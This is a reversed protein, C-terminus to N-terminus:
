LTFPSVLRKIRLVSKSGDPGISGERERDMSSGRSVPPPPTPQTSPGAIPPGVNSYPQSDSRISTQKQPKKTDKKDEDDTM